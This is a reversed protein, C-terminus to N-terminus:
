RRPAAEVNQRCGGPGWREKPGRMMPSVEEVVRWLGEKNKGKPGRKM